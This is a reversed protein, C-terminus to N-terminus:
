KTQICGGRDYGSGAQAAANSFNGQIKWDQGGISVLGSWTWACKDANEAGQRDFWGTGRPDTLAESLEHGTVNALAALGRSHGLTGGDQPDCGPDNDLSFFFAFQVQTSGIQGWSHWACYGANGRPIDTYVPYYGNPVPAIMKGVEALVGSTGPDRAPTASYDFRDNSKGFTIGTSVRRNASDTYETNTNLYPSGGFGGYLTDLGTVKDGAFTSTNWKPGWYIAQVIAGANMVPGSHYLLLKASSHGGANGRAFALGHKDGAVQVEPGAARAVAGCVVAVSLAAMAVLVWGRVHRV